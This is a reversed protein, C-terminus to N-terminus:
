SHCCCRLTTIASLRARARKGLAVALANNNVLKLLCIALMAVDREDALLGSVGDEVLEPIGTHRTSVVPLGTSL